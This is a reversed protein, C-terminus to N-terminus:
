GRPRAAVTGNYSRCEDWESRFGGNWSGGMAEWENGFYQCMFKDKTLKERKSINGNGDWKALTVECDPMENGSRDTRILLEDYTKAMYDNLAKISQYKSSCIANCNQM